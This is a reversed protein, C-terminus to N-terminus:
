ALEPAPVDEEVIARCHHISFSTNFEGTSESPPTHDKKKVVLSGSPSLGLDVLTSTM